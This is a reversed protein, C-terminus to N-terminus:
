FFQSMQFSPTFIICFICYTVTCIALTFVAGPHLWFDRGTPSCEAWSNVSVQGTASFQWGPTCYSFIGPLENFQTPCQEKAGSDKTSTLCICSQGKEM